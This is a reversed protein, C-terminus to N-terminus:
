GSFEFLGSGSAPARFRDAFGAVDAPNTIPISCRDPNCIYLRAEKGSPYRGPKEYHLLKRPHYAERAANFLAQADEKVGPHTYTFEDMWRCATCGEIGVDLIILKDTQQAQEFPAKGWQQWRIAGTDALLSAAFSMLLVSTLIKM